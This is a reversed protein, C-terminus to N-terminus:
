HIVTKKLDHHPLHVVVVVPRAIHEGGGGGLCEHELGRSLGIHGLEHELISMIVRQLLHAKQETM